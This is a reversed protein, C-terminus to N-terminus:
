HSITVQGRSVSGDDAVFGIAAGDQTVDYCAWHDSPPWVSCYRDGQVQWHGISDRGKTYITEGDAKFSQTSRDDFVVVKGVLAATIGAGDLKDGAWVPFAVVALLVTWRMRNGEGNTGIKAGVKHVTILM